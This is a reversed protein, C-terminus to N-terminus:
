IGGTCQAEEVRLRGTGGNVSGDTMPLRQRGNVRITRHLSGHLDGGKFSRIVYLGKRASPFHPPAM